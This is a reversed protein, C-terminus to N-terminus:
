ARPPTVPKKSLAGDRPGAPSSPAPSNRGSPRRVLAGGRQFHYRSCCAAAAMAAIDLPEAYHRDILDKAARLNTLLDVSPTTTV